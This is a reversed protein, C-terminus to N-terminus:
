NSALTTVENVKELYVSQTDCTFTVQDCISHDAVITVNTHDVMRFTYWEIKPTDFYPSVIECGLSKLDRTAVFELTREGYPVVQNPNWEGNFEGIKFESSELPNGTSDLWTITYNPMAGGKCSLSIPEGEWFCNNCLRVRDITHSTVKLEIIPSKPYLVTFNFYRRLPENLSPHFVLWSIQKTNLTVAVTLTSQVENPATINTTANMDPEDGDINMCDWEIRTKDDGEASVVIEVTDNTHIFYKNNDLYHYAGRVEEIKTTIADVRTISNTSLLLLQVAILQAFM